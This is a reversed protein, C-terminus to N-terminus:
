MKKSKRTRVSHARRTNETAPDVTKLENGALILSDWEISMKLRWGFSGDRKLARKQGDHLAAFYAYTRSLISGGFTLPLSHLPTDGRGIHASLCRQYSEMGLPTRLCLAINRTGRDHM